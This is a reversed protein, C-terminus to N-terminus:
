SYSVEVGEIGTPLVLTPISNEAQNAKLIAANLEQTISLREAATTIGSFTITAQKVDSAGVQASAYSVVASSGTMPNADVCLVDGAPLLAYPGDDYGSLGSVEITIVADWSIEDAPGSAQIDLFLEDGNAYGEGGDGAAAIAFVLDGIVPAALDSNVLAVVVITQPGGSNNIGGAPVDITIIDGIAYGTGPDNVVVATINQLADTTIDFTAGGAQAALGSTTTASTAWGTVGGTGYSAPDTLVASAPDLARDGMTIDCTAGAGQGTSTFVEVNNRADYGSVTGGSELTQPAALATGDEMPIKIYNSM